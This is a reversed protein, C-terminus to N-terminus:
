QLADKIARLVRSRYEKRIESETMVEYAWPWRGQHPGAQEEDERPGGYLKGTIDKGADTNPRGRVPSEFHGVVTKNVIYCSLGHADEGFFPGDWIGLITGRRNYKDTPPPVYEMVDRVEEMIARQERRVADKLAEPRFPRRRAANVEFRIM